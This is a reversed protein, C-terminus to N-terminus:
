LSITSFYGRITSVTISNLRYELLIRASNLLLNYPKNVKKKKGTDIFPKNFQEIYVLLIFLRLISSLTVQSFSIIYLIIDIIIRVVTDM